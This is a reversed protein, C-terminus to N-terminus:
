PSVLALLSLSPILPPLNLLSLCFSASFLLTSEWSVSYLSSIKFVVRTSCLLYPHFMLTRLFDPYCLRVSPFIPPVPLLHSILLHISTFLTFYPSTCYPPSLDPLSASVPRFRLLSLYLSCVPDEPEAWSRSQTTPDCIRVGAGSNSDKIPIAWFDEGGVYGVKEELQSFVQWVVVEVEEFGEKISKHSVEEEGDGWVVWGM